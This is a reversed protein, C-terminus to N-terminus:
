RKSKALAPYLATKSFLGLFSVINESDFVIMCCGLVNPLHLSKESLIETVEVPIELEFCARM